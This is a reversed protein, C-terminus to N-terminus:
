FVAHSSIASSLFSAENLILFFRLSDHTLPMVNCKDTVQISHKFNTNNHLSNDAWVGTKSTETTRVSLLVLNYQIEQNVLMWYFLLVIPLYSIYSSLEEYKIVFIYKYLMLIVDYM